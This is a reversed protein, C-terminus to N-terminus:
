SLEWFLRSSGATTNYVSGMRAVHIPSSPTGHLKPVEKDMDAPVRDDAGADAVDPIDPVFEEAEDQLRGSPLTLVM